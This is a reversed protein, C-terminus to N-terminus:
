LLETWIDDVVERWGRRRDEAVPDPMNIESAPNVVVEETSADDVVWATPTVGAWTFTPEEPPFLEDCRARWLGDVGTWTLLEEDRLGFMLSGVLNMRYSADLYGEFDPEHAQKFYLKIYDETLNYEDLFVALQQQVGHRAM